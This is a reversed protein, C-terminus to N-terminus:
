GTQSACSSNTTLQHTCFLPPQFLSRTVLAIGKNDHEQTARAPQSTAACKNYDARLLYFPIKMMDTLGNLIRSMSILGGSTSEGIAPTVSTGNRANNFRRPPMPKVTESNM